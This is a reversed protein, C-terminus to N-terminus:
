DSEDDTAEDEEGDDPGMYFDDEPNMARYLWEEEDMSKNLYLTKVTQKM